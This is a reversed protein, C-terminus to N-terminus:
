ISAAFPSDIVSDLAVGFERYRTYKGTLM